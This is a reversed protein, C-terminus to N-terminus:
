ALELYRDREWGTVTTIYALWDQQVLPTYDHVADDGRLGTIRKDSRALEAAEAPTRPLAQGAGYLDGSGGPALEEHDEIGGM